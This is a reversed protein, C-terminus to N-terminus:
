SIKKIEDESTQNHRSGINWLVQLKGGTTKSM